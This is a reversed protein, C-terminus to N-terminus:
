CLAQLNADIECLWVGIEASQDYRDAPEAEALFLGNEMQLTLLFDAIRVALAKYKEERTINAVISAAWALKHAFHFSYISEHCGLCFDLIDCATKLYSPDSTARHLQALFAAPYGLMFYLQNPESKKVIHFVAMDPLYDSVLKGDKSVRLLFSEEINPQDHYITQIFKGAKSATEM